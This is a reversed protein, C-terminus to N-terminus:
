HLPKFKSSHEENPTAITSPVSAPFSVPQSDRRSSAKASKLRYSRSSSPQLTQMFSQSPLNMQMNLRVPSASATREVHPSSSKLLTTDLNFRVPSAIRSAM